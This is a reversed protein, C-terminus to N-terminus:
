PIPPVRPGRFPWGWLMRPSEPSFLARSAAAGRAVLLGYLGMGFLMLGIAAATERTSITGRDASTFAIWDWVFHIAISIGLCAVVLRPWGPAGIRALGIGYGGIGGLVLHGLLRVPEAPPLTTGAYGSLQLFQISEGVAMGLGVISGYIIGDMPDDLMAPLLLALLAVIAFRTLEEEVAAIAALVAPGAAPGGLRDLTWDEVDGLVWMAVGGALACAVLMPWPEREYMDYRVVLFAAALACALLTGYLAVM